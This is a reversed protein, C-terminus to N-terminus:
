KKVPTTTETFNVMYGQFLCLQKFLHLLNSLLIIRKPPRHDRHQPRGCSGTTWGSYLRKWCRSVDEPGWDWNVFDMMIEPNRNKYSKCKNITNQCKKGSKVTQCYHVIRSVHSMQSVSWLESLQSGLHMVIKTVQCNLTVSSLMWLEQLTQLLPCRFLFCPSSLGTLELGVQSYM